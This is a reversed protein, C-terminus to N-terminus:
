PLAIIEPALINKESLLSFFNINMGNMPTKLTTLGHPGDKRWIQLINTSFLGFSPLFPLFHVKWGGKLPKDEFDILGHSQLYVIQSHDM